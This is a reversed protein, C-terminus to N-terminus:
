GMSIDTVVWDNEILPYPNGCFPCDKVKEADFSGGCSPCAVASVSFGLDTPKKIVKRLSLRIKDSKRRIRGGCYHVSDIYFTLSVDCVGDKFSYKNVGSNCYAADVIERLKEPVPQACRCVTLEQPNRSYLMVKLLSFSKDRFYEASFNPDLKRMERCFRLSAGTKGAGRLDKGMQFFTSFFMAFIWMMAGLFPGGIICAAIDSVQFGSGETLRIVIFIILMLLAAAGSCKLYRHIESKSQYGETISYYMVKPYLEHMLFKTGCFECGSELKGLTAAAGCHPCSFSTDPAPVSGEKPYQMIAAVVSEASKSYLEKQSDRIVTNILKNGSVSANVFVSDSYSGSFPESDRVASKRIQVQMNLGLARIKEKQLELVFRMDQSALEPTKDRCYWDSLQGAFRHFYQNMKKNDSFELNLGLIEMFYGDGNKQTKM